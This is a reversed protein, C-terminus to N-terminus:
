LPNKWGEEETGDELGLQSNNGKYLDLLHPVEKEYKTVFKELFYKESRIMLRGIKLDEKVLGKLILVQLVSCRPLIRKELSFMLLQPYRIIVAREWGMKNVFFDMHNMIKKESPTMFWPYRRFAILIDYESFGWRRYAELKQNWTAKNMSVFGNLAIIFLSKSPDFGMQQIVKLIQKFRNNKPTVTRPYKTLLSVINSEPVGNERLFAINRAVNQIDCSIFRAQRKLGFVVNEVTGVLSKLFNFSLIIKNELSFFLVRPDSSLIKAINRNSLGFSHFFELKPLLLKTPSAVLLLPCKRILSSIEAETFGYNRFLTLVSDPGDSSEFGVKKSASIAAAPSFGCSSILYSVVFPNQDRSAKSSISRLFSPNQLFGPQTTSDRVTRGIPVRKFLFSYM